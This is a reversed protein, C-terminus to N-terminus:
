GAPSRSLSIRDLWAMLATRMDALAQNSRDDGFDSLGTDDNSELSDNRAQGALADFVHVAATPAVRALYRVLAPVVPRDVALDIVLFHCSLRVARAMGDLVAEVVEVECHPASAAVVEQMRQRRLADNVVLLVRPAAQDPAATQDARPQGLQPPLNPPPM